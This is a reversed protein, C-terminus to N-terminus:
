ATEDKPPMVKVGPAPMTLSRAARIMSSILLWCSPDFLQRHGGLSPASAGCVAEAHAVGGPRSAPNGANGRGCPLSRGRSRRERPKVFCQKM